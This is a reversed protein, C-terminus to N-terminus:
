LQPLLENIAQHVTEIAAGSNKLYSLEADLDSPQTTYLADTPDVPTTATEHYVLILWTKQAIAGDIWAKVQAQTINSDVEYIKLQALDFNDKTNYGSNVTRQSQYYQKGVALTNANYAGYPYAFDTIPVGMATQLTSQSNAMENVLATQSLTTLDPHTVTHSAIEEGAGQLAKLESVAMYDPQDTLEGSIIYFTAPLSYKQLLPFANQYQNMWGDDFTVSVIGRSFPLPTYESLSYDDSVIYGVKALIQYIAMSKAGAPVTFTTTFKTWNTNALVTGLWYYQTTGDSMVVEADVETDVNSQYWNSYQYTKGSTVPLDNYYWNAAGNTYAITQVKVSHTGTHGTNLYSFTSTNTGWNSSLWSQPASGNATELSPNLILNTGSPPTTPQNNVTVTIPSSVTTLNATNTAVATLTYSGNAATTTDWSYSYPSTTIANGLSADNLKFQVSAIGQADSATATLAQTGTVSANNAPASISVTPPTPAATNQVTIIESATTTLSSTNRAVAALTHNGNTLKTTDLSASYPSSTDESGINASDIQFQVGAVGSADIANAAITITGNVTTNAAPSTLSVTPATPPTTVSNDTLNFDDTQLTGVRNLLHFITLSKVNAPTTFTASLQKWATSSAAPKALQVYSLKGATSTYQVDIESAVNSTYFESYIYSTNPKVTVDAFLWKADGSTHKTMSLYLSHTGTHSDNTKYTFTVTNTGWKDHSWNLPSTGATNTTEVSPNNILNPAAATVIAAPISGAAALIIAIVPLCIRKLM